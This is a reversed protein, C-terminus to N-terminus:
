ISNKKQIGRSSARSPTSPLMGFRSDEMAFSPNKPRPTREPSADDLVAAKKSGFVDFVTRFGGSRSKSTSDGTRPSTVSGRTSDRKKPSLCEDINDVISHTKKEKMFHKRRWDGGRRDKNGAVSQRRGSQKEHKHPHHQQHAIQNESPTPSIQRSLSSLCPNSDDCSVSTTASPARSLQPTSLTNSQSTMCFDLDDHAHHRSFTPKPTDAKLSQRGKKHSPADPTTEKNPFIIQINLDHVESRSGFEDYGGHDNTPSGPQSIVLSELDISDSGRISLQLTTSGSDRSHSVRKGKKTHFTTTSEASESPPLKTKGSTATTSKANVSKVSKSTNLQRGRDCAGAQSEGNPDSMGRSKFFSNALRAIGDERGGRKRPTDLDHGLEHNSCTDEGEPESRAGTTENTGQRSPLFEKPLFARRGSNTKAHMAFLKHGEHRREETAMPERPQYRKRNLSHRKMTSFRFRYEQISM